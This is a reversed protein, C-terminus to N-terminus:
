VNTEERPVAFSMRRQRCPLFPHAILCLDSNFGIIDQNDLQWSQRQCQLVVQMQSLPQPSLSILTLPAHRLTAKLQALPLTPPNDVALLCPLQHQALFRILFLARKLSTQSILLLRDIQVGAAAANPPDFLDGMELYIAPIGQAQVSAIMRYLLTTAGSTAQGSLSHTAGKLLGGDLLGDVAEMGTSLTEHAQMLESARRLAHYGFRRQIHTVIM